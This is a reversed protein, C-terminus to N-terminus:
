HVGQVSAFRLTCAAPKLCVLLKEVIAQAGQIKTGEFSFRTRGLWNCPPRGVEGDTYSEEVSAGTSPSLQASQLSV